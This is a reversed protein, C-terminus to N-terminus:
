WMIIKSVELQLSFPRAIIINFLFMSAQGKVPHGCEQGATPLTCLAFFVNLKSAKQPQKASSINRNDHLFFFTKVSVSIEMKLTVLRDTDNFHIHICYSVSYQFSHVIQPTHKKTVTGSFVSFM